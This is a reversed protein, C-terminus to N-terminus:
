WNAVFRNLHEFLWWFIGSVPFLVVFWGTRHTVPAWGTRQITLGNVLLIYGLWLPAFVERRWTSPVLGEYWACLWAAAILALGLWGWWPFRHRASVRAEPRASAFARWYLAVAALLPLALVAFWVWDVAPHPLIRTRPPFALYSQFPQGAVVLGLVPVEWMLTAALLLVSIARARM